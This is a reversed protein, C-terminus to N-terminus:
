VQPGLVDNLLKIRAVTEGRRATMYRMVDFEKRTLVIGRGNVVLARRPEDLLGDQEAGLEAASLRTLGGDVSREGMDLLLSRYNVDDISVEPEAMLRIDLSAAAEAYPAFNTLTLYV